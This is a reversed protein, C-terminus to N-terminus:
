TQLNSKRQPREKAHKKKQTKVHSERQTQRHGWRGKKYPCWNILTWGLLKMKVQNIRCLDYIWICDCESTRPFHFISLRTQSKTVGHVICDMSNELGAYQLPYGKGEGPSRGSEPVSSPDGANCTSEQGASSDPFGWPGSLYFNLLSKSPSVIWGIVPTPLTWAQRAREMSLSGPKDSVESPRCKNAQPSEDGRTEVGGAGAETVRATVTSSWLLNGQLGLFGLDLGQLRASLALDNKSEEPGHCEQLTLGTPEGFVTGKKRADLYGGERKTREGEIWNLQETMDSEKRRSQLVGPRGTWWWSRSSVWVWTWWTPSAM